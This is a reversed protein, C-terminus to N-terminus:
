VVENIFGECLFCNVEKSLRFNEKLTEDTKLLEEFEIMEGFSMEKFLYREIDIGRKLKLYRGRIKRDSNIKNKILEQRPKSIKYGLIFNLLLEDTIYM